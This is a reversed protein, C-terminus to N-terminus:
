GGEVMINVGYMSNFWFCMDEVNVIEVVIVMSNKILINEEVVIWFIGCMIYIGFKLGFSYVYDVFLWFGKGGVVFFFCEEILMLRGYFDIWMLIKFEKYNYCIVELVYWGLDVVIYEWGYVKLYKVMFVVNEWVEEERVDVGFCDWSNWGMLLYVVLNLNIVYM